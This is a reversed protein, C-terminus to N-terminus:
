RRAPRPPQYYSDPYWKVRRAAELLKEDSTCDKLRLRDPAHNQSLAARTVAYQQRIAPGFYQCAVLDLAKAWRAEQRLPPVAVFCLLGLLTLTVGAVAFPRRSGCAASGPAADSAPTHFSVYGVLVALASLHIQLYGFPGLHGFVFFAAPPLIWVSLFLLDDRGPWALVRRRPLAMAGLVAALAPLSFLLFYGFKLGQVGSWRLAHAFSPEALQVGRTLGPGLHRDLWVLVEVFALHYAPQGPTAAPDIRLSDYAYNAPGVVQTQWIAQSASARFGSRAELFYRNASYWVGILPIALALHLPIWKWQRSRWLTYIWLPALFATTTFRFAGGLAWCATAGFLCRRSGSGLARHCLLGILTAFMGEVAYSVAVESYHLTCISASYIAATLLSARHSLEFSRALLYCFLVGLLTCTLNIAQFSRNIDHVVSNLLHGLTCYGVYGPPHAVFQYLGGMSFTFCDWGVPGPALFPLRVALSALLLAGVALVRRDRFVRFPLWADPM